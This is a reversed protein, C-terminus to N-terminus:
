EDAVETDPSVMGEYRIADRQGSLILLRGKGHADIELTINFREVKRRAEFTIRVRNKRIEKQFDGVAANLEIAGAAGADYFNDWEGFYPLYSTVSDNTLQLMYGDGTLNVQSLAGGARGMLVGAGRAYANSIQPFAYNANFEWSNWELIQHLRAKESASLIISGSGCNTLLLLSTLFVVRFGLRKIFYILFKFCCM